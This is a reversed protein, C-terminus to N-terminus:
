EHDFNGSIENEKYEFELSAILEANVESNKLRTPFDVDKLMDVIEVKKHPSEDFMIIEEDGEANEDKNEEPLDKHANPDLMKELKENKAFLIKPIDTIYNLMEEFTQSM